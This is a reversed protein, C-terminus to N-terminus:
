FIIYFANFGRKFSGKRCKLRPKLKIWAKIYTPFNTPFCSVAIKRRPHNNQAKGSVKTYFYVALRILTYFYM